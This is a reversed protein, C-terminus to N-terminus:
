RMRGDLQIRCGSRFHIRVHKSWLILLVISLVRVSRTTIGGNNVSDPLLIMRSAGVETETHHRGPGHTATGYQLAMVVSDGHGTCKGSVLFSSDRVTGSDVVAM